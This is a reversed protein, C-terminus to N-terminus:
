ALMIVKGTGQRGVQLTTGLKVGRFMEANFKMLGGFQEYDSVKDVGDEGNYTLSVYYDTKDTGGSISLNHTQSYANRFLLKFWDTNMEEVEKTRLALETKSINGSAYLGLLHELGVSGMNGLGEDYIQQSLRVREKSNLLNFDKYCPRLSVTSTHQYSINFGNRKGNKTTVLSLVM